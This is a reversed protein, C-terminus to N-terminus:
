PQRRSLDKVLDVLLPPPADTKVAAQDYHAPSARYGLERLREVLNSPRPPSTRAKRALESIPYSWAVDQPEKVAREVIKLAVAYTENGALESSLISTALTEEVLEGLWIPGILTSPQGCTNCRPAWDHIEELKATNLCAACHALHGTMKSAWYAKSKGREIKFFIRVFHRYAVSLVPKASLSLRSATRAVVGALGRIAVEKFFVTKTITLGYRWYATRRSSGSLAALDTASVGLLGGRETTRLANELFRIPSGFPDIDVYEARGEVALRALLLNADMKETRLREELGNRETNIKILTAAWPNIDGAVGEKTVGSELLLRVSRAGAGALPEAFFDCGAGAFYSNVTLVALDRSVKSAPNYFAPMRATAPGEESLPVLLSARGEVVTQTRFPLEPLGAL